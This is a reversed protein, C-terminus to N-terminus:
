LAVISSYPTAYGQGSQPYPLSLNLMWEYPTGELSTRVNTALDKGIRGELSQQRHSTNTHSTIIKCKTQNLHLKTKKTEFWPIEQMRNMIQQSAQCTDKVVDKFNFSMTPIGTELAMKVNSDFKSAILEISKYTDGKLIEPPRYGKRKRKNLEYSSVARALVNNRIIFVILGVRADDKAVSWFANDNIRVHEPKVHALILSNHEGRYCESFDKASELLGTRKHFPQSLHFSHLKTM